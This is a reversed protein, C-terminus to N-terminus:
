EKPEQVLLANLAHHEDEGGHLTYSVARYERAAQVLAAHKDKLRSVASTASGLAVKVDCEDGTISRYLNALGRWGAEARAREADLTALLGAATDYLRIENPENRAEVTLAAVALFRRVRDVGEETLPTPKPDSTM